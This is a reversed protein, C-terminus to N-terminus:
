RREGAISLIALDLSHWFRVHYFVDGVSVVQVYKTSPRPHRAPKACKTRSVVLDGCADHSFDTQRAVHQLVGDFQEGVATAVDSGVVSEGLRCGGRSPLFAPQDHM